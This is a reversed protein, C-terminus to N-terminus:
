RLWGNHIIPSGAELTRMRVDANRRVAADPNTFSLGDEGWSRGTALAVAELDHKELLSRLADTGVKKPERFSLEVGQYGLKKVRSFSDGLDGRLAVASFQSDATTVVMAFRM